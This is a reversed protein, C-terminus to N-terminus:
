RKRRRLIDAEVKNLEDTFSKPGDEYLRKCQMAHKQLLVSINTCTNEIDSMMEQQAMEMRATLAKESLGVVKGVSVSREIFTMSTQRYKEVIEDKPDRNAACRMVLSHYVGCILNEHSFNNGIRQTEDEAAGMGSGTLILVAIMAAGVLLKSMTTMTKSLKMM